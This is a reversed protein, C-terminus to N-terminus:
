AALIGLLLERLLESDPTNDNGLGKARLDYDHLLGLIHEVQHPQFMKAAQRYEKLFFATKLGLAALLDSETAGHLAHVTYVKTFYSGLSPIVSLALKDQTDRVMHHLITYSRERQRFSLAKHLEFVNFERSIGIGDQIDKIELRYGKELGITLKQLENTITSIQNGLLEFAVQAAEPAIAYGLSETYTTIWDPVQNDYLKKSEFIMAHQALSKAAATRGDLKKHKYAIVLITSPVPKDFYPAMGAFDRMEQAERIVIVQRPAMMPLRAAMDMIAGSQADRGYVITQNFARESEDLASREIAHTLEDIFYEEDGQFLYLPAFEKKKFSKLLDFYSISKAM